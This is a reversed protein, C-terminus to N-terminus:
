RPNGRMTLFNQKQKPYSHFQNRQGDLIEISIVESVMQSFNKCSIGQFLGRWRSMTNYIHSLPYVHGVVPTVKRENNTPNELFYYINLQCHEPKAMDLKGTEKNM